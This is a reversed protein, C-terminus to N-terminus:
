KGLWKSRMHERKHNSLRYPMVAKYKRKPKYPGYGAAGEESRPLRARVKSPATISGWGPFVAEPNPYAHIQQRLSQLRGFISDYTTDNKLAEYMGRFIPMMRQVEDTHFQTSKAIDEYLWQVTEPDVLSVWDTVLNKVFTQCEQNKHCGCEQYDPGENVSCNSRKLTLDILHFKNDDYVINGLHADAHGM